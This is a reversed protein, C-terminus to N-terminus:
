EGNKRRRSCKMEVATGKGVRSWWVGVEVTASASSDNWEVAGQEDGSCVWLNYM